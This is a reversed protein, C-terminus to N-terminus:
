LYPRCKEELRQRARKLRGKVADLTCQLRVAITEYPLREIERLALIEREEDSLTALLRGLLDLDEPTHAPPKEFFTEGHMEVSADLSEVARRKRTRLLDRCHNHAIRYIWTEFSADGKFNKLAKFAKLFIEQAADDAEEVHTLFTLCLLRIRVQHTRVLESYAETDGEQVAQIIEKENIPSNRRHQPGNM